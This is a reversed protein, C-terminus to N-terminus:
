PVTGIKRARICISLQYDPDVPDLQEPSLEEHSLGQLFALATVVNGYSVVQVQEVGFVDGFLREASLTTFRWYDGWRDMDYRSIQSIGCVTALVVGGPRLMRHMTKVAAQCDYIFPLTQTLIACDVFESPIGEGTSLDGVLTADKNGEVAHLVESKVDRGGFKRTYAPSGIELVTGHIDGRHAELFREIYYRDIPTGRDYGFQRSAPLVRALAEAPDVPAPRPRRPVLGRVFRKVKVLM